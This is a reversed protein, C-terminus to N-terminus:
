SRADVGLDHVLPKAVASDGYRHVDVAVHQGSQLLFRSQRDLFQQLTWTRTLNPLIDVSQGRVRRPQPQGSPRILPIYAHFCPALPSSLRIM